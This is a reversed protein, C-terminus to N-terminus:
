ERGEGDPEVASANRRRNRDDWAAHQFADPIEWRPPSTPPHGNTYYYRKVLLTLCKPCVKVYRIGSYRHGFSDRGSVHARYGKGNFASDYLLIGCKPCTWEQPQAVHWLQMDIEWLPRFVFWPIGCPRGWEPYIGATWVVREPEYAPKGDISHIAGVPRYAGYSSLSVYAAIYACTAAAATLITQKRTIKMKQAALRALLWGACISVILYFVTWYSLNLFPVWDEFDHCNWVGLSLAFANWWAALLPQNPENWRFDVPTLSVLVIFVVLTLILRVRRRAWCPVHDKSPKGRKSCSLFGIISLTIVLLPLLGLFANAIAYAWAPISPLNGM